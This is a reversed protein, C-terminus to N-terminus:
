VMFIFLALLTLSQLALIGKYYASKKVQKWHDFAWMYTYLSCCVFAVWGAPLMLLINLPGTDDGVNLTRASGLWYALTTLVSVICVVWVQGRLFQYDDRSGLVEKAGEAIYDGMDRGIRQAGDGLIKEISSKLTEDIKESLAAMGDFKKNMTDEHLKFVLLLYLFSQVNAMGMADSIRYIELQEEESLARKLVTEALASMKEDLNPMM